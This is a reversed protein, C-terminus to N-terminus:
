AAADARRQKAGPLNGPPFTATNSRLTVYLVRDVIVLKLDAMDALLRVATALNTEHQFRASVPTRAKEVARGDVLITMGTRDALEALVEDLPRDQFAGDIFQNEPLSRENTTIEIYDPRILFVANNTPVKDLLLRLLKAWPLGQVKPLDLQTEGIKPADPNEEQFAAQNIVVKPFAHNKELYELTQGLTMANAEWKLGVIPENLKKRILEAATPAKKSAPVVKPAKRESEPGRPTPGANQLLALPVEVDLLNVPVRQQQANVVGGVGGLMGGMGGGIMGVGGGLMGGGDAIQGQALGPIQAPFKMTKVPVPKAQSARLAEGRAPSTVVYVNGM